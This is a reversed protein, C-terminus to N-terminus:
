GSDRLFSIILLKKFGPRSSKHTDRVANIPPNFYRAVGLMDDVNPQIRQAVVDRRDAVKGVILRFPFLVGAVPRRVNVDNALVNEAEVRDNPRRNQHGEAFGQRLLHEAM